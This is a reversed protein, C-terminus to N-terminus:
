KNNNLVQLYAKYFRHGFEIQGWASFHVYDAEAGTYCGTTHRSPILEPETSSAFGYAAIYNEQDASKLNHSATSMNDESLGGILVPVEPSNFALRFDYLVNRLRAHYEARNM